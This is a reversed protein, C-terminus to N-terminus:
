RFESVELTLGWSSECRTAADRLESKEKFLVTPSNVKPELPWSKKSTENTFPNLRGMFISFVMPHGTDEQRTSKFEFQGEVKFPGNSEVPAATPHLLSQSTSGFGESEGDHQVPDCLVGAM